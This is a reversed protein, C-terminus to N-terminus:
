KHEGMDPPSSAYMTAGLHRDDGSRACGVGGRRARLLGCMLAAGACCGLIRRIWWGMIYDAGGFMVRVSCTVLRGARARSGPGPQSMPPLTSHLASLRLPPRPILAHRLLLPCHTASNDRLSSAVSPFDGAILAARWAGALAADPRILPLYGRNAARCLPYGLSDARGLHMCRVGPPMCLQAPWAAGARHGLCEFDESGRIKWWGPVGHVCM